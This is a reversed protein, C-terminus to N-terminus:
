VGGHLKDLNYVDKFKNILRFGQSPNIALDAFDEIRKIEKKILSIDSKIESKAMNKVHNLPRPLTIFDYIKAFKKGSALRLVRGRRQIYEKPNTSSALIFARKIKPINVGEDLCRIAILAQLNEGKSFEKKLIGRESSNEEATFKAIKMDLDNGLISGVAMIQRLEKENAKGDVYDIDSVTTAGCYVLTHSEGIYDIMEEKLASLKNQAGAVLRARKIAIRKGKDNLVKKGNKNTTFCKAMQKSLRRYADLEDKTLHVVIPYYYYQTLKEEKIALELPYNICEEGFYDFLKQTGEPDGYREITASLALRYPINTNLKKSLNFSGFNHAEDVVVVVNGKLRDIQKQVFDSAFTANTTVLCFHKIVDLSFDIVVDKLRDKWDRQCSASYGIIPDMNFLEIDEVWQEVLHQYPCVIIVALSRKEAFLKAIAALGTFTKGTGTAMNFYGKFDKDVWSNVAQKQYDYLDIEKPVKPYNDLDFELSEVQSEKFEKKDLEQDYDEKMYTKLKEIGVSPFDFVTIKNTQNDWLRNFDNEKEAVRELSEKGKWSSFVDISEFNKTFATSSENLSGTFAIKNGQDDYILGIKEHYLGIKNDDEYFALKIDLLGKAILHALMNLREEEFYNSPKTFSDLISREFIEDRDEYGKNIAEIDKEQLKPSAILQIKGGNKILGTIGRSVEILSSSSFFGVARKYLKANELVPIYFDNVIDDDSSRYKIKLNLGKFGM